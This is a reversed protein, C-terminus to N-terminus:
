IPKYALPLDENAVFFIITLLLLKNKYEIIPAWVWKEFTDPTKKKIKARFIYAQMEM